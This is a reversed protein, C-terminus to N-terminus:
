RSNSGEPQETWSFIGKMGQEALLASSIGTLSAWGMGEKVEPPQRLSIWNMILALPTNVEAISLASLCKEYDLNLLRACSAAAGIAAWTGSGFFTHCKNRNLYIGLRIGIEYGIIIAEIFQRGTANVREALAMASPVIVGGPHGMATRHGDDADLCSASLSNILAAWLCSTKAARGWVTAEDSKMPFQDILFRYAADHVPQLSGALGVGCSDLVACHAAEIVNSSTNELNFYRIFNVLQESVM